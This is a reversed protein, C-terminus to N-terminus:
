DTLLGEKAMRYCNDTLVAVGVSAIEYSETLLASVIHAYCLRNNNVGYIVFQEEIQAFWLLEM